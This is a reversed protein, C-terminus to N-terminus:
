KKEYLEAKMHITTPGKGIQDLSEIKVDVDDDDGIVDKRDPAQAKTDGSLAPVPAPPTLVASLVASGGILLAVSAALAFRPSRFWPRAPPPAPRVPPGDSLKLPPWPRPMESRFFASLVEDVDDGGHGVGNAGMPPRTVFKM